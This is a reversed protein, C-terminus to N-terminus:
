QTNGAKRQNDAPLYIGAGILVVLYLCSHVFNVAGGETPDNGYHHNAENTVCSSDVSGGFVVLNGGNYSSHPENKFGNAAENEKINATSDHRSTKCVWM